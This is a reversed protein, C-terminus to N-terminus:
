PLLQWGSGARYDASIAGNRALRHFDGDYISGLLFRERYPIHSTPKVRILWTGTDNGLSEAAIPCALRKRKSMKFGVAGEM